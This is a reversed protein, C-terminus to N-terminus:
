DGLVPCRGYEEVLKELSGTDVVYYTFDPQEIFTKESMYYHDSCGPKRVLYYM